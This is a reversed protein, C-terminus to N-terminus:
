ISGAMRRGEGSERAPNIRRKLDVLHDDGEGAFVRVHRVLRDIGPDFLGLRDAFFTSDGNRVPAFPSLLSSDAPRLSRAPPLLPRPSSEEWGCNNFRRKPQEHVEVLHFQGVTNVAENQGSRVFSM